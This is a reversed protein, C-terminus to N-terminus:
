QQSSYNTEKQKNQTESVTEPPLWQLYVEFIEKSTDNSVRFVRGTNEYVSKLYKLGFGSSKEPATHRPHLPNSVTIGDEEIKIEMLMPTRTSVVNHKVVNEVLIQLSFPILTVHSLFDSDIPLGTWIVTFKNRYRTILVEIYSRIFEIEESASVREHGHRDLVYRYMEALNQIFTRASLPDVIVLSYLLNFSNFLFHPNVQAKLSEYKHRMVQQSMDEVKRQYLMISKFYFTMEILLLVLLDNLLTGSWDIGAKRGTFFPFIAAFVLNVCVAVVLSTIIDVTIKVAKDHFRIWRYVIGIYLWWVIAIPLFNCVVGFIFEGISTYPWIEGFRLTNYLAQFWCYYLLLGGWWLWPNGFPVIPIKNMKQESAIGIPYKLYKM